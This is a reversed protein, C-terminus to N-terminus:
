APVRTPLTSRLVSSMIHATRVAHPPFSGFIREDSQLRLWEFGLLLLDSRVMAKLLDLKLCSSALLLLTGRGHDAGAILCWVRGTATQIEAQSTSATHAPM